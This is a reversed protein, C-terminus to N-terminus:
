VYPLDQMLVVLRWSQTRTIFFFKLLASNAVLFRDGSGPDSTARPRSYWAIQEWTGSFSSCKGNVTAFRMLRVVSLLLHVLVTNAVAPSILLPLNTHRFDWHLWALTLDILVICPSM